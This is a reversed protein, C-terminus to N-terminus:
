PRCCPANPPLKAAHAERVAEERGAQDREAGREGQEHAGRQRRLGRAGGRRGREHRDGIPDEIGVVVRM